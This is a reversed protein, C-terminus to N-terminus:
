NSSAGEEVGLNQFEVIAIRPRGLDAILERIM